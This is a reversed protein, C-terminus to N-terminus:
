KKVDCTEGNVFFTRRAIEQGASRIVIQHRGSQVNECLPWNFNARNMERTAVVEQVGEIQGEENLILCELYMDEHPPLLQCQVIMTEGIQYYQKRIALQDAM